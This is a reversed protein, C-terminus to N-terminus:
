ATEIRIDLHITPFQPAHRICRMLENGGLHNRKTFLPMQGRECNNTWIAAWMHRGNTKGEIAFRAQEANDGPGAGLLCPQDSSGTGATQLGRDTLDVSAPPQRELARRGHHGIGVSTGIGLTPVALAVPRGFVAAGVAPDDLYREVFHHPPRLSCEM